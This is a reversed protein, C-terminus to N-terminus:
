NPCSNRRALPKTISADPNSNVINGLKDVYLEFARGVFTKHLPHELYKEFDVKDRFMLEFLYLNDNPIESGDHKRYTYSQIDIGVSSILLCLVRLENFFAKTDAGEKFSITVTHTYLNEPKM